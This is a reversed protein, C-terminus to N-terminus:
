KLTLDVTFDVRFCDDFIFEEKKRPKSDNKNDQTPPNDWLELQIQKHNNDQM